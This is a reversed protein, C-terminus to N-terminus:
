RRRALVRYTNSWGEKAVFPRLLRDGILALPLLPLGAGWVALHRLKDLPTPRPRWPLNTPPALWGLLFVLGGTLDVPQHCQGRHTVAVEFGAEDLLQVLTAHPVIHLHQPQFYPVWFRGLLKRLGSEPDPVEILLLGGRTLTTAAARLEAVPDLTHELYHSMSVVDYGAGALEAAKDPFLGRHGTDVWGRRAADEISESIDLGDFVCHPWTVRADNAFHGHGGGVDLWRQPTHDVQRVIEARARYAGGATGFIFEARKAGLGDYFDGYYTDLGALSLRPNQMLTGCSRCRDLHFRGPKHQLLDTTDLAGVLKDSDCVRCSEDRPEFLDATAGERVLRQYRPRREEVPDTGSREPALLMQAWWVLELPLRLASFRLLDKPRLPTGTLALTPQLHFIVLAALALWRTEPSFLGGLMVAFLLGQLGMAVAFSGGYLARALVGQEDADLPRAVLGPAVAYDTTTAACRKLEESLEELGEIDLETAADAAGSTAREWTAPDVWVAHLASRGNALRGARFRPFDVQLALLVALQAPLDRPVLEVVALGESRAWARAAAETEASM